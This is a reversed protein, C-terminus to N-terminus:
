AGGKLANLLEEYRIVGKQKLYGKQFLKKAIYSIGEMYIDLSEPSGDHVIRGADLHLIRNTYECLCTTNHSIMLITTGKGHLEKMREMFDERAYPDLGAIPEDLILIKPQVALVGAIAVRRKEGGSLSLPSKKLIKSDEFGMIQLAWCVREHIEKGSLGSRKLAFAVDKEVTTEFLQYEPYQFVVGVTRRLVKRDYAPDQINQGDVLIEGQSPTLLGAILQILTSKGCGTKGMIGVWEGDDIQLTTPKLAEYDSEPYIYSVNKLTVPM